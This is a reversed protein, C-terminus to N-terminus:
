TTAPPLKLRSRMRHEVKLLEGRAAAPDHLLEAGLAKAEAGIDVLWRPPDDVTEVVSGIEALTAVAAEVDGVLLETPAQQRLLHVKGFSPHESVANRCLRLFGEPTSYRSFYPLAEARILEVLSRMSEEGDELREFGPWYWQSTAQGLRVTFDAQWGEADVYLPQITAHLYYAAGFGSNSRVIACAIPGVPALVFDPGRVIWSGPLEPVVYKTIARKWLPAKM